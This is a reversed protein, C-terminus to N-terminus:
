TYMWRPLCPVQRLLGAATIRVMAATLLRLERAPLAAFHAHGSYLSRLNLYATENLCPLATCLQKRNVPDARAAKCNGSAAAKTNEAYLPMHSRYSFM